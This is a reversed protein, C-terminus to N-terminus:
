PEGALRREWEWFARPTLVVVPAADGLALLDHDGSVIAAAGVAVALALVADDDADRCLPAARPPPEDAGVFPQLFQGVEAVREPPLKLKRVMARQVEALIQRSLALEHKDLVHQVLEACLGRAALAAVLVNSDLVIRLQRVSSAPVTM